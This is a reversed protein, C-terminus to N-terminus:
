ISYRNGIIGSKDTEEDSFLFSILPKLLLCKLNADTSPNMLLPLFQEAIELSNPFFFDPVESIIEFSSVVSGCIPSEREVLSTFVQFLASFLDPLNTDTINVFMFLNAVLESSRKIIEDDSSSLGQLALNTFFEWTNALYDNDEESMNVMSRLMANSM